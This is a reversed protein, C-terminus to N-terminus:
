NLDPGVTGKSFWGNRKGNALLRLQRLRSYSVAEQPRENLVGFNNINSLASVTQGIEISEQAQLIYHLFMICM